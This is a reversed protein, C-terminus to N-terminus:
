AVGIERSKLHRIIVPDTRNKSTAAKMFIVVRDIDRIIGKLLAIDNEGNSISEFAVDMLTEDNRAIGITYAIYCALNPHHRDIRNAFQRWSQLWQNWEVPAIEARAVRLFLTVKVLETKWDWALAEAAAREREVARIHHRQCHECQYYCALVYALYERELMSLVFPDSEGPVGTFVHAHLETLVDNFARGLIPQQDIASM